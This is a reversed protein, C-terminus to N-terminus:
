IKRSNHEINAGFQTDTRGMHEFRGLAHKSDRLKVIVGYSVPQATDEHAVRALWITEKPRLWRLSPDLQLKKSFRGESPGVCSFAGFFQPFDLTKGKVCLPKKM